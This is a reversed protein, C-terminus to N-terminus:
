YSFTVDMSAGAQVGDDPTDTSTITAGFTITDAAGGTATFTSPSGSAVSLATETAGNLSFTPASLVLDTDSFSTITAFVSVTAAAPTTVDISGAGTGANIVQRISNDTTDVGASNGDTIVGTSANMVLTNNVDDGGLVLLWEGFDMAVPTGLTIASNTSLSVPVTATQANVNSSTPIILALAGAMALLKLKRNKM